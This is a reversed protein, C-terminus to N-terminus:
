GQKRNILDRLWQPMGALMSSTTPTPRPTPAAQNGFMNGIRQGMSPLKLGFGASGGVAGIASGMGMGALAMMLPQGYKSMFDTEGPHYINRVNTYDGWTPDHTVYNPNIANDQKSVGSPAFVGNPNDGRWGFNKPANPGFAYSGLNGSEGGQTTKLYGNDLLYKVAPDNADEAQATNGAYQWIKSAYDPNPTQPPDPNTTGPGWGFPLQNPM